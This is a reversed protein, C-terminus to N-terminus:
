KKDKTTDEVKKNEKAEKKAEKIEEFRPNARFHKLHESNTIDWVRGTKKERFKAM